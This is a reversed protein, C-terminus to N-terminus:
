CFKAAQPLFLMKLNNKDERRRPRLNSVEVRMFLIFLLTKDRSKIKNTLTLTEFRRGRLGSSVFIEPPSIKLSPRLNSTLLNAYAVRPSCIAVSHGFSLNAVSFYILLNLCSVVLSLRAFSRRDAFASSRM